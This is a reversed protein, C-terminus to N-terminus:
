CMWRDLSGDTRREGRACGYSPAPIGDLEEGSYEFDFNAWSDPKTWCLLRWITSFVNSPAVATSRASTPSLLAVTVASSGVSPLM